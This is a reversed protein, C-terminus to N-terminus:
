PYFIQVMCAAWSISLNTVGVGTFSGSGNGTFYNNRDTACPQV